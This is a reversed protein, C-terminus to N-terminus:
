TPWEGEFSFAIPGALRIRGDAELSVDLEGGPMRVRVQQDVAGVQALALVAACAGSGCALTPGAGREDVRLQIASRDEVFAVGINVDAAEPCDARLKAALSGLPVAALATESRLVWHPNGVDVAALLAVAMGQLTAALAPGLAPASSVPARAAQGLWIAFRGDPMREAEVSGAPSGMQFRAADSALGDRVAWAALCRAGNGCQSADSGDSNRIAYRLVSADEGDFVELLQDFGIGRHRDAMACVREDSLASRGRRDVIVFDNGCGHMKSFRM